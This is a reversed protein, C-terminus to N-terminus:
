LTDLYFSKRWAVTDVERLLATLRRAGGGERSQTEDTKAKIEASLTVM